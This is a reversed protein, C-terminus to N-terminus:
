KLRERATKSRHHPWCLSRLNNSDDTGGRAKPIVHDVTKAERAVGEDLCDLCMYSDRKLVRERIDEWRSGYGRQHRTQGSKYSRWGEGKHQECYGGPDITTNRCGRARCAKPTRPPM